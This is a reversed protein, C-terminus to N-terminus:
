PPANRREKDLWYEVWKRPEDMLDKCLYAYEAAAVTWNEFSADTMRKLQELTLKLMALAKKESGLEASLRMAVTSFRTWEAVEKDRAPGEPLSRKFGEASFAFYAACAAYETAMDDRALRLTETDSTAATVATAAMALATAVSCCMAGLDRM